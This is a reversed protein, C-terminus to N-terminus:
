QNVGGGGRGARGPEMGAVWSRAPALGTLTGLWVSDGNYDTDIFQFNYLIWLHVM